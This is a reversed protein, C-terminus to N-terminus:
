APAVLVGGLEAAKADYGPHTLEGGEARGAAVWSQIHPDALLAALYAAADPDELAIAYTSFRLAVPAFMADAACFAGFLFPGAGSPIGYDRRTQAWIAAM